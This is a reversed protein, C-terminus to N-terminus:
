SIIKDWCNKPGCTLSEVDRFESFGARQSMTAAFAVHMLFVYPGLPNAIKISEFYYSRLFFFVQVIFSPTLYGFQRWIKIQHATCASKNPWICWVILQSSYRCTEPLPFFRASANFKFQIRHAHWGSGTSSLIKDFSVAEFVVASRTILKNSCSHLNHRIM